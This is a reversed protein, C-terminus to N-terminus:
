SNASQIPQLSGMDMMLQLRFACSSFSRPSVSATRSSSDRRPAEASM